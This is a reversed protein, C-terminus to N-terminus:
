VRRQWVAAFFGDTGHLHPWLRLYPYRAEGGTKEATAESVALDQSLAQAQALKAKGLLEAVPLLEFERMGAHEATFAEAVAENEERLLSCTAYVLRGGPKVLKAAAALIRAQLEPYSAADEESLRWKRDPSRRLTGLGTCPADVLVRDMKGTLAKLREDAEHAIALPYLNSVGARQARPQLGELRHTSTDMAYLRGQGRMLAAMALTKGGAGACFDAVMDGRKPDVLLALLQSGEDQVEIQGDRYLAHQTLKPKGSMRLGWPSHPTEASPHGDAALQAAVKDRKVLATNVRVDLPAPQLLAQALPWAAEGIQAQLRQALWQPLNHRMPDNLNAPEPTALATQLWTAEEPTADATPAGTSALALLALRRTRGAADGPGDKALHTLWNRERLAAFCADSLAARERPGLGRNAKFHAALLSDAPQQAQRLASLLASAHETLGM